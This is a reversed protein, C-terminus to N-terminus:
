RNLVPSVDMRVVLNVPNLNGGGIENVPIFERNEKKMRRVWMCGPMHIKKSTKSKILYNKM